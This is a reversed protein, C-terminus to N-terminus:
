PVLKPTGEGEMWMVAKMPVWAHVLRWWTLVWSILHETEPVPALWSTTTVILPCDDTMGLAMPPADTLYSKMSVEDEAPSSQMGGKPAASTRKGSYQL